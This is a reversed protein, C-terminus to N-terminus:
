LGEAVFTRLTKQKSTNYDQLLTNVFFNKRTCYVDETSFDVVNKLLKFHLKVGKALNTLCRIKIGVNPPELGDPPALIRALLFCM